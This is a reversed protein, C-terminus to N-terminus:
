LASVVSSRAFIGGESLMVLGRLRSDCAAEATTSSVCLVTDKDDDVDDDDDGDGGGDGGGTHLLGAVILGVNCGSGEEL